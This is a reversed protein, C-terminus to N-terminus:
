SGQDPGQVGAGGELRVEHTALDLASVRAGLRLDVDHERYWDAPHVVADDFPASGALYAKSLPPREYPLHQEAGILTLRGTLGRGGVGRRM